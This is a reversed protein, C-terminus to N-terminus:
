VIFGFAQLVEVAVQVGVLVACGRGVQACRFQPAGARSGVGVVRGTRVFPFLSSSCRRQLHPFYFVCGSAPQEASDLPNVRLLM